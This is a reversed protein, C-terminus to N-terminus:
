VAFDIDETARVIAVEYAFRLWLDRGFAGAIFIEAEARDGAQVVDRVVDSLPALATVSSLDIM